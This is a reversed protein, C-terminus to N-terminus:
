NLITSHLGKERGGLQRVRVDGFAVANQPTTDVAAHTGRGAGRKQQPSILQIRRTTPNVQDLVHQFGAAWRTLQLDPM